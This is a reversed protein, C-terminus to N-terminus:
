SRTLRVRFTHMSARPGDAEMHGSVILHEMRSGAYADGLSNRPDSHGMTQGIVRGAPKWRRSCMAMCGSVLQIGAIVLRLLVTKRFQHLNRGNNFGKNILCNM